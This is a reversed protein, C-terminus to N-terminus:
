SLRRQLHAVLLPITGDLRAQKVKTWGHLLQTLLDLAEWLAVRELSLPRNDTYRRVFRDCVEDLRAMCIALQEPSQGASAADTMGTVKMSACFLAVDMAPEARCFGDFDILSIEDHWVLVQAPRFSGHSPVDPDPSCMAAAAVIEDLVRAAAETAGPAVTTLKSLHGDLHMRRHGEGHALEADWRTSESAVAGCGHLAALAEAAREALTGLREWLEPTDGAVADEIVAKVTTEERLAGQVLLREDHLYGLPEAIHVVPSTSLPSSWMASMGDFAVLGKDGRYTKAVIVDPAPRGDSWAADVRYVVTCRSGPKYRAARPECREIRLAASEPRAQNVTRELIDRALSADLLSDLVPLADDSGEVKLELGLDPLQCTWTGDALAGKVTPEAAGPQPPNLNGVLYRRVDSADALRFTVEYRADWGVGKLRLRGATCALPTCEGVEAGPHQAARRLADGVVATDGAASLWGPLWALPELWQPMEEMKM